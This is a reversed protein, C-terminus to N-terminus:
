CLWSLRNQGGSGEAGGRDGKGKGGRKRKKNEIDKLVFKRNPSAFSFSILSKKESCCAEAGGHM